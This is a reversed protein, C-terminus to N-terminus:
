NLQPNILNKDLRYVSHAHTRQFRVFEVFEKNIKIRGIVDNMLSLIRFLFYLIFEKLWVFRVSRYFDNM